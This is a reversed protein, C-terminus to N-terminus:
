PQSGSVLRVRLRDQKNKKASGGYNFNTVWAFDSATPTSFTSTTSWYSENATFPFYAVAISPQTEGYHVISNLERRTPLRWTTIGCNSGANLRAIYAQTNCFSTTDTGDFGVCTQASGDHGLSGANSTFDTSYWQFLSDKNDTNKVEWTLGSINDTVCAWANVTSILSNGANDLKQFNFGADGDTNDTTLTDLGHQADQNPFGTIPCNLRNEVDNGCLTIGTDNLGLRTISPVVLATNNITTTSTNTSPTDSSDGGCGSLLAVGLSIISIQLIFKM